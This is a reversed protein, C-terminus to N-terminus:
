KLMKTVTKITFMASPLLSSAGGKMVKYIVLTSIGLMAATKLDLIGGTASRLAKDMDGLIGPMGTVKEPSSEKGEFGLLKYVVAFLLEPKMSGANYNVLISGSTHNADLSNINEARVLQQSLRSFLVESRAKEAVRLRLRGPLIHECTLDGKVNMLEHDPKKKKAVQKWNALAAVLFGTLLHM